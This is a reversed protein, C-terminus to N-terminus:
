VDHFCGAKCAAICFPVQRCTLMVLHDKAKVFTAPRSPVRQLQLLAHSTLGTSGM